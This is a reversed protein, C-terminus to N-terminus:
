SIKSNENLKIQVLTFFIIIDEIKKITIKKNNELELVICLTKGYDNTMVEFDMNLIETYSISSEKFLHHFTLNDSDATLAYPHRQLFIGMPICLALFTFFLLKSVLPTIVLSLVLLCVVIRLQFLYNRNLTFKQSRFNDKRIESLKLCIKKLLEPFDTTAYYIPVERKDYLFIVVRSGPIDEIYQIDKWDVNLTEDSSPRYALGNEDIDYYTNHNNFSECYSSLPEEM